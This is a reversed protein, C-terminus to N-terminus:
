KWDTFLLKFLEKLLTKIVWIPWLLSKIFDFEDFEAFLGIVFVVITIAIYIGIILNM